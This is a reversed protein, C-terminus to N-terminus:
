GAKCQTFGAIRANDTPLAARGALMVAEKASSISRSFAKSLARCPAIYAPPNYRLDHRDVVAKRGLMSM